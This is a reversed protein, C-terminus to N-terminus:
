CKILNRVKNKLSSSNGIEDYRGGIEKILARTAKQTWNYKESKDGDSDPCQISETCVLFM